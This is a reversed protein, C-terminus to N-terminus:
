QTLPAGASLASNPHNVGLVWLCRASTGPCARPTPAHPQIAQESAGPGNELLWPMGGGLRGIAWVSAPSPPPGPSPGPCLFGAVPIPSQNGPTRVGSSATDPGPSSPATSPFCTATTGSGVRPGPVPPAAPLVAKGEKRSPGSWAGPHGQGWMGGCREGQWGLGSGTVLIGRHASHPVMGTSGQGSGCPWGEAQGGGAAGM